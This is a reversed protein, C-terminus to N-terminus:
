GIAPALRHLESLHLAVPSNEGCWLVDGSGTAADALPEFFAVSGGREYFKQSQATQRRRLNKKAFATYGRSRMLDCIKAQDKTMEVYIIEARSPSLHEGMGQLVSYDNGETDIKLFHVKSVSQTEIIEKLTVCRV